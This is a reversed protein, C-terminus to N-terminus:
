RSTPALRADPWTLRHGAATAPPRNARPFVRPAGPAGARHGRRARPPPAPRFPPAGEARVPTGLTSSRGSRRTSSTWWWRASGCRRIASSRTWRTSRRSRCARGSSGPSGSPPRGRPSSPRWCPFSSRAASWASRPELRVAPRGRPRPARDGPLLGGLVEGRLGRRRRPRGADPLGPLPRGLRPGLRRPRAGARGGLLVPRRLDPALGPLRAALPRLAGGRRDARAPVPREAVALAGFMGGALDGMPLGMRAPPRGAEGTLSM